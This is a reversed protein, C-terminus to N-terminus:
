PPAPQEPDRLREASRWKPATDPHRPTTDGYAGSAMVGVIWGRISSSAVSKATHTVLTDEAAALQSVRPKSPNETESQGVGCGESFNHMTHM